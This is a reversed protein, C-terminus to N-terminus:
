IREVRVISFTPVEAQEVVLVTLKSILENKQFLIQLHRKLLLNQATSGLYVSTLCRLWPNAVYLM